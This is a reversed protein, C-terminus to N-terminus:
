LNQFICVLGKVTNCTTISCDSTNKGQEHYVKINLNKENQYLTNSDGM